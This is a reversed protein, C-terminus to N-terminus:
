PAAGPPAIAHPALLEFLEARGAVELSTYAASLHNSATRVSLFLSEAIERDARGRLAELVVDVRRQSLALERVAPVHPTGAPLWILAATAARRAQVEDGREGFELALAASCVGAHWWSGLDLLTVIRRRTSELDGAALAIVSDALCEMLPAGHMVERLRRFQQAVVSAAGWGVADHLALASWGYHSTEIGAHVGEVLTAVADDPRGATVEAWARARALWLQDWMGSGGGRAISAEIDAHGREADGSVFSLLASGARVFPYANFADFVSLQDIAGDVLQRARAMDGTMWAAQSAAFRTLGNPAEDQETFQEEPLVDALLGEEILVNIRVGRVLDIEGPRDIVSRDMLAVAADLHEHVNRLDILQVEAWSANTCATWRADVDCGPHELIRKAAVLVDAYRGLMSGFLVREMELELREIEDTMRDAAVALVRVAEDPRNRYFGHIQGMALAVTRLDSSEKAIEFAQGLWELARDYDGSVRAVDGAVFMADFAPDVAIAIEVLENALEVNLLAIAERAAPIALEVSPRDGCALLWGALRLANGRHATPDESLSRALRRSVEKRQLPTLADRVVEGYLPHAPRAVVRDAEEFTAVLGVGELLDIADADAIALDTDFPDAVAILRLQEQARDDLRDIRGGVVDRLRKTLGESTGDTRARALEILFLPNGAA